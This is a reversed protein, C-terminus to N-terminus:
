CHWHQTKHKHRHKM